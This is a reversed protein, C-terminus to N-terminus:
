AALRLAKRCYDKLEEGSSPMTTSHVPNVDQLAGVTRVIDALGGISRSPLLVVVLPAPTTMSCRSSRDSEHVGLRQGRSSRRELPFALEFSPGCRFLRRQDLSVNLLQPPQAPTARTVSLHFNIAFLLIAQSRNRRSGERRDNGDNGDNADNGDNWHRMVRFQSV